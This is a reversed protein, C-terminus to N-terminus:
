IHGRPCMVEPENAHASAKGGKRSSYLFSIYLCSTHGHTLLILPHVFVYSTFKDQKETVNKNEINYTTYSTPKKGFIM